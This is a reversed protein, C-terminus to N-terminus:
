ARSKQPAVTRIAFALGFVFAVAAIRTGYIALFLGAWVVMASTLARATVERADRIARFGLIVLCCLSLIGFVGHEGLMRTYETHSAGQRVEREARYYYGLGPGVGLVPNELFMDVETAAFADRGTSEINSYRVTIMGETFEELRPQIVLKGVLSCVISVVMVTARARARGRLMFFLATVTGAFALVVGGRAFTLVAQTAFMFALIMLPVRMLWPLRREFTLFLIFMTALGLVASVQNAGFGGSAYDNSANVFDLRAQSALLYCLTAIGVTPIVLAYFTARLQEIGIKINSFFLVALAILLPGSLNFSLHARAESMSITMLTIAMSPLLLGIYALAVVRNRRWTMRALAVMLIMVAVYKGFEWFPSVKTMRWLVECGVLYSLVVAINRLNRTTAAYVVGAALVAVAHALGLLRFNKMLVALLVHGAMLGIVIAIRWTRETRQARSLTPTPM